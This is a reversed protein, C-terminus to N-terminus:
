NNALIIGLIAGTAIGVLLYEGSNDDRVYHYGRPPERLHNRRWDVNRMHARDAASIRDGRRWAHRNNDRHDRDYRSDHHGNNNWERASASTTAIPATLAIIAATALAIRKM